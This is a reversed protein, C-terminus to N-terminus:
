FFTIALNWQIRFNNRQRKGIFIQSEPTIFMKKFFIVKKKTISSCIVIYFNRFSKPSLSINWAVNSLDPWSSWEWFHLYVKTSCFMWKMSGGNLRNILRKALLFIFYRKAYIILMVTSLVRCQMPPPYSRKGDRPRKDERFKM